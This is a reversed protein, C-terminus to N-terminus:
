WVSGVLDLRKLLEPIATVENSKAETKVQGLVLRNKCAWASVMHIAPRSSATDYSRMLTKGDIAIIEGGSFHFLENIWRTASLATKGYLLILKGLATPM